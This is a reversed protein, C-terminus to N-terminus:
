IVRGILIKLVKKTGKDVKFDESIKIGPIWLIRNRSIILPITDRIESPIKEDVFIDQLKKFSKMGLPRMKDGKLRTRIMLSGKILDGNIYESRKRRKGKKFKPRRKVIETRVKIGLEPIATEGPVNLKVATKLQKKIEEPIKKNTFLVRGKDRIVKIGGALDVKQRGVKTLASEVQLWHKYTIKRLNGRLKFIIERVILRQMAIHQRLLDDIGIDIGRQTKSTLRECLRRAAINLYSFEAGLNKSVLNLNEKIKPNFKKELLPILINRVRNRLYFTKLNSADIRSPIGQKKIYKEIDSRKIDLLPRIVWRNSLQRKYPIGSLGASGAGKILRMLVTEAQDDMTHATAIKTAVVKKAARQYFDYRAERAAEEISMKNSNALARVDSEETVFPINLKDAIKKVFNADQASAKGRLMHDLHAVALEIGYEKRLATLLYLLAMSDPGGSVCLLIKDGKKILKNKEITDRVKSEIM